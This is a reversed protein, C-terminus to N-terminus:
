ARGRSSLFQERAFKLATIDDDRKDCPAVVGSGGSATTNIGTEMGTIFAAVFPDTVDVESTGAIILAEDFTPLRMGTFYGGATEFQFRAGEEVDSLPDASNKLAVPLGVSLCVGIRTIRGTISVDILKAVEQAFAVVDTWAVSSPVNVETTSVKGKGDEVSLIVSFAM